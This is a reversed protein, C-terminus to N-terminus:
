DTLGDILTRCQRMQWFAACVWEGGIRSQQEVILDINKLLEGTPPSKEDSEDDEAKADKTDKADKAPAAGTATATSAAAPVAPGGPAIKAEKTDSKATAAAAKAEAATKPERSGFPYGFSMKTIQVLARDKELADAEPFRWKVEKEEM